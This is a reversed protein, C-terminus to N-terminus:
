LPMLGAHLDEWQRASAVLGKDEAYRVDAEPWPAPKATLTLLGALESSAKTDSLWRLYKTLQDHGYKSGLKSEIVLRFGEGSLLADLYGCPVPCQTRVDVAGSPARAGYALRLLAGGVDPVAAMLWALMSTLQDEDGARRGLSFLNVSRSM